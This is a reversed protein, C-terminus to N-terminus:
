NKERDWEWLLFPAGSRNLWTRRVQWDPIIGALHQWFRPPHGPVKLHTLEHAVVYDVIPLPLMVLRWNFSLRGGRGLHCEGWRRKWDRLEVQSAKVQMIGEWHRVREGILRASERRLWVQLRPWVGDRSGAEQVLIEGSGLQVPQALDPVLRVRYPKGRFFVEESNIREWAARRETLKRELWSRHRSVAQALTEESVGMPAAVVIEGKGTVTLGISKRRRSRKLTVELGGITCTIMTHPKPKENKVNVSETNLM